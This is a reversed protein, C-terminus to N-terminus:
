LVGQSSHAKASMNSHTQGWGRSANSLYASIASFSGLNVAPSDPTKTTCHMGEVHDSVQDTNIAQLSFWGFGTKLSSSSSSSSHRTSAQPILVLSMVLEFDAKVEPQRVGSCQRGSSSTRDFAATPISDRGSQCSKSGSQGVGARPYEAIQGGMVYVGGTREKGRQERDKARRYVEYVDNRSGSLLDLVPLSKAPVLASQAYLYVVPRVSQLCLDPRMYHSHPIDAQSRQHAPSGIWDHQCCGGDEQAGYRRRPACHFRNEHGNARPNTDADAGADRSGGLYM